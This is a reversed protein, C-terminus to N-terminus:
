GGQRGRGTKLQRSEGKGPGATDGGKQLLLLLAVLYRRWPLLAASAWSTSKQSQM